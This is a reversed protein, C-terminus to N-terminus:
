RQGMNEDLECAYQIFFMGKEKCEEPPSTGDKFILYEGKKNVLDVECSGSGVKDSKDKKPENM